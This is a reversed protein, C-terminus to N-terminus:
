DYVKLVALDDMYDENVEADEFDDDFELDDIEVVFDNLKAKEVEEEDGDIFYWVRFRDFEVEDGDVDTEYKVETIDDRDDIDVGYDVLANYLSKRFDRDDLSVSEGALRLAEAEAADDEYEARNRMYDGSVVPASAVEGDVTFVVPDPTEIGTIRKDLALQGTGLADLKSNVETLDVIAKVENNAANWAFGTGALTVLLLVILIGLLTSDEM